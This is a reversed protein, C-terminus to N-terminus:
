VGKPCRTFDFAQYRSAFEAYHSFCLVEQRRSTSEELKLNPNAFFGFAPFNQYLQSLSPAKFGTGYSAKLKTDTEPVIFAPAVRYTTHGGFSENDDFRVNSAVFFHNFFTSELEAFAAKNVNSAMFGETDLGYSEHEVGLVLKQTDVITIDQRLDFKLRTGLSNSPPTFDAPPEKDRTWINSYSMGITTKFRNDPTHWVAEERTFFQHDIQTSRAADPAGCCDGTFLLKSDTFRAVANVAFTDTLDAGVRTSYTYNDYYNDNAKQGPPLTYAPTVPTAASHFHDINFSYNFISSSGSLGLKQNFTGFSGGEASATVKPPGSGTKTTISIV